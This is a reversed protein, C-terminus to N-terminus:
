VCCVAREDAGLMTWQSQKALKLHAVSICGIRTMFCFVRPVRREVLRREWKQCKLFLNSGVLEHGSFSTHQARLLNCQPSTLMEQFIITHKLKKFVEYLYIKRLVYNAIATFVCLLIM